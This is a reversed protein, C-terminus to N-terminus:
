KLILNILVLLIASLGGAIGFFWLLAKGLSVPLNGIFRGTQGNMAFTYVKDKFRTNLLWVPMMVERAASQNIDVACKQLTLSTYGMVTSRLAQEVSTRIRQDARPRAQQASIDAKQAGFGSLYPLAFTKKDAPDFPEVSEMIVDDMRGSADVPLNAFDLTGGRRVLYHKTTTVQYNGQRRSSVKTGRWVADSSTACDFLWFPVYVGKIEEVKNMAAFSSPLLKKKKIYAKYRETVQDKAQSFPIVYDPKAMGVLADGMVLPNGCYVCSGAAQDAEAVIECGCSPCRYMRVRGNDEETWTNGTTMGDWDAKEVRNVQKEIDAMQRIDEVAYENGCSRCLMKQKEADFLLASACAPCQYMESM